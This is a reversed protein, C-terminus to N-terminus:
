LIPTLGAGFGTVIRTYIRKTGVEVEPFDGVDEWCEFFRPDGWPVPECGPKLAYSRAYPFPWVWLDFIPLAESLKGLSYSLGSFLPPKQRPAILWANEPRMDREIAEALADAFPADDVVVLSETNWHDSRPDFNHTGVIAIRRDIVISKAHLGVRVGARRLPVPGDNGGRTASGFLPFRMAAEEGLAGTAAPDIPTDTPYPKYEHITFGLERLYARKYKHSMAYVPFADTAALSNTSVRVTPPPDREQLDQFLERAPRSMVLYPTQLLVDDRAGAIISRMAESADRRAAAGREHKEPLDAIFRVAGVAFTSDRLGHRLAADESAARRMTGLRGEHLRERFDLRGPPAGQHRRWREAVDVLAEAPVSREAEWFLDFEDRMDRAEPGAVLLDRDRYNYGPDWDFYRDQVNRGGTIAVADDVVLTKGHMRQNFRRFCCVIGAAFQLPQTRAEDFTPNYLRLEFNRHHSALAAQLNPEALGYLQDLLVRVRVGREAADLLADLVLQGSDDLEFIFSKLEIRQQASRILALRLALADPGRELLVLEHRPAADTSAALKAVGAERFSSPTACRDPLACDVVSSRAAVMEAAIAEREPAPLSKCAALLLAAFALAFARAARKAVSV